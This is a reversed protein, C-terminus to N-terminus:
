LVYIRKSLLLGTSYCFSSGLDNKRGRMGCVMFYHLYKQKWLPVSFWCLDLWVSNFHTTQIYSRRRWNKNCPQKFEIAADPLLWAWKRLLQPQCFSCNCFLGPSPFDVDLCTSVRGYTNLICQQLTFSTNLGTEPIQCVQGKTCIVIWKLWYADTTIM